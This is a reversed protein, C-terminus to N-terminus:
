VKTAQKVQKAAKTLRKKGQDVTTTAQTKVEEARQSVDDSAEQVRARAEEAREAVEDGAEDVRDRVAEVTLGARRRVRAAKRLIQRRTREGSHPANLLAAGAGIAGGILLGAVFGKAQEKGASYGNDDSM